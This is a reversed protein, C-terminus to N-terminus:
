LCTRPRKACFHVTVRKPVTIGYWEIHRGRLGQGGSPGIRLFGREACYWNSRRPEVAGKLTLGIPFEVAEGNGM